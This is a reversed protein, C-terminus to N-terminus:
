SMASFNTGSVITYDSISYQTILNNKKYPDKAVFDEIELSNVNENFIFLGETPPNGVAGACHIKNASTYELIHAIHGQRYPARKELMNDVYNYRLLLLKKPKDPNAFYSAHRRLSSTITRFIRPGQAASCCGIGAM